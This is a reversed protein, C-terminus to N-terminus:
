EDPSVFTLEGEEELRRVEAVFASMAAEAEETPIKGREDIEDRIQDALRSSINSLVFEVADKASDPAGGLLAVTQSNDLGRLIRPLDRPDIRDPVNEFTFIAARVRAGFEPDVADIRELVENRIGSVAANLIAGVRGIPGDEFANEPAVASQLGLALGIRAVAAPTVSETRGFALAINERRDEAMEALLDAARQPSLKSLVIAAVEDSEEALLDLIAPTDLATIQAWPGPADTGADAAMDAMLEEVTELSLQGDLAALLRGPERPFHLGIDDLEAAFEAVTAALTARDVFRLAMMDVVIRRQQAPPLDRLGPDVGGSILLHVIVAAKQRRTLTRKPVSISSLPTLDTM